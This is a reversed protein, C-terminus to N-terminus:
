LRHEMAERILERAVDGVKRHERRAITEVAHKEFDTLRLCLVSDLTEPTQKAKAVSREKREDHHANYVIVSVSLM